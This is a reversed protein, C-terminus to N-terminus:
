RPKILLPADKMFEIFREDQRIPDFDPQKQIAEIDSFGDLLAQQLSEIAKLVNGASAYLRAMFYSREMLSDTGGAISLSIADSKILIDPDLALGKQWETMAKEYKKREFYLAGLNMHFSAEDAKLKIAKKFHKEAKKLDKQAFRVSGLNNVSYAYKPNLDISRQFAAAAYEYYQLQSYTIGLRNSIYESNPNLRNAELYKILAAYYDKRNFAVDGERSAQNAKLLDEDSVPVRIVRRACGSSCISSLVVLLCIWLICLHERRLHM